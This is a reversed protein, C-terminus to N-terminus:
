EAAIDIHREEEQQGASVEAANPLPPFALTFTSGCPGTRVAVTGNSAQAVGGVAPDVHVLCPRLEADIIAHPVRQRLRHL